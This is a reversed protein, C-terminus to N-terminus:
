LVSSPPETLYAATWATNYSEVTTQRSSGSIEFSRTRMGRAMYRHAVSHRRHQISPYPEYFWPKALYSMLLTHQSNLCMTSEFRTSISKGFHGPQGLQESWAYVPMSYGILKWTSTGWDSIPRVALQDSHSVYMPLFIVDAADSSCRLMPPPWQDHPESHVEPPLGSMYEIHCSNLYTSKRQSTSRM